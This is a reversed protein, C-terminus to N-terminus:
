KTIVPIAWNELLNMQIHLVVIILIVLYVVHCSPFRFWFGHNNFLVQLRYM